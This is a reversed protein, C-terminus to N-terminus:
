WTIDQRSIHSAIAYLVFRLGSRAIFGEMIRSKPLKSFGACDRGMWIWGGRRSDIVYKKIYAWLKEFRHLYNAKDDPTPSQTRRSPAVLSQHACVSSNPRFVSSWLHIGCLLFWRERRGM